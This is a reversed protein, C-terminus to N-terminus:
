IRFGNLLREVGYAQAGIYVLYLLLYFAAHYRTLRRGLLLLPMIMATAGLMVWIDFSSIQSIIPLPVILASFGGVAFMNFVNSGVVNGVAVDIHGRRAAVVSAALEPLSTGLALLTLGIVEESVQYSRAITAGGDVLLEAGLVLGVLGLVIYLLNVALKWSPEIEIQGSAVDGNLSPKDQRRAQERYSGWLFVFLVILFVVAALTGVSGNFVFLAFLLSGLMLVTADRISIEPKKLVPRVIAAAGLILLINAINSGVINGIALGTAGNLAADISIVMEPASTGFAVVTMGVVLPPVHLRLALNVSGRVLIEAATLLLVFGALVQLYVMM